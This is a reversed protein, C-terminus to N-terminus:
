RGQGRRTRRRPRRRTLMSQVRLRGNVRQGGRLSVDDTTAEAVDTMELAREAAEEATAEAVEAAADLEDEAAATAWDEDEAAALLTEEMSLEAAAACLEIEEAAEAAFAVAVLMFGDPLPVEPELPLPATASPTLGKPMASPAPM